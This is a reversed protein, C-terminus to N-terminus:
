TQALSLAGVAGAYAGSEILEPKVGAMGATGILIKQLPGNRDLTSGCYFITEVGHQRALQAAILAINEGILGCLAHAIDPPERSELKAFSAANLDAALPASGSPYVDGVLLDVRRRDGRQALDVVERFSDVELLLKALGLLTGGGLASGGIRVPQAAERALLISTGTGLSVVLHDPPVALGERAALLRAGHAWADFESVIQVELGRSNAIESAGGGTAAVKKLGWADLTRHVGELDGSDFSVTQLADPHSFSCVKCLTAGADIGAWSGVVSPPVSVTGNAM